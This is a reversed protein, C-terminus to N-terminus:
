NELEDELGALEALHCCLGAKLRTAGHIPISLRVQSDEKGYIHPSGNTWGRREALRAFEGSALPLPFANLSPTVAASTTSKFLSIRARALIARSIREARTPRASYVLRRAPRKEGMCSSAIRAQASRLTPMDRQPDLFDAGAWIRWSSAPFGLGQTPLNQSSGLM